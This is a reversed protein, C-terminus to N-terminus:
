LENELEQEKSIREVWVTEMANKYEKQKDSM